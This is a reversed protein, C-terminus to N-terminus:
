KPRTVVLDGIGATQGEAVPVGESTVATAAIRGARARRNLEAVTAADGAIM